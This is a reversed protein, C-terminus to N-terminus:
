WFSLISISCTKCTFMSLSFWRLPLSFMYKMAQLLITHIGWLGCRNRLRNSPQPRWDRVSGTQNQCILIVHNCCTVLKKNASKTCLASMLYYQSIQLNVLELHSTTMPVALCVSYSCVDPWTSAPGHTWAAIFDVHDGFCSQLSQLWSCSVHLFVDQPVAPCSVLSPHNQTFRRKQM